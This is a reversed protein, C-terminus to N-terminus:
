GRSPARDAGNARSDRSVGYDRAHNHGACGGGRCNRDDLTFVVWRRDARGSWLWSGIKSSNRPREWGKAPLARRREQYVRVMTKISTLAMDAAFRTTKPIERMTSVVPTAIACAVASSTPVTVSGVPAPTARALTTAM